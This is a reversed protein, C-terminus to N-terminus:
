IKKKKKYLAVVGGMGLFSAITIGNGILRPPTNQTFRTQVTHKGAPISYSILGQTREFTMSALKGDIRTEWGPFYATEETITQEKETNIAYIHQTGSWSQIQIDAKSEPVPKQNSLTGPQIVLTRPRNEDLITSTQTFTKYYLDDHHIFDTVPKKATSILSFILVGIFVTRVARPADLYIYGALLSGLFVVPGLLRWPFQVYSLMPILKWIFLSAPLMMFSLALVGCVLGFIQKAHKTRFVVHLVGFFLSVLILGGIQFSMTDIPGPYSFGHEFMSFLLQRLTPFHLYYQNSVSVLDLTVFKKEVLAPIWFFSSALLGFFATLIVHKTRARLAIYILLSPIVFMAVINHALALSLISIFLFLKNKISPNQRTREILWLTTPLLAYGLVEGIAGRLYINSFLFPSLLYTCTAFLSAVKPMFIRCYFYTGVTGFAVGLLFLLKLTTEVHLRVALFPLAAINALPYNFNFVPYGYGGWFTPAWRPPFQGQKLAVAYNAIRALHNEGDHTFPFGSHFMPLALLAFALILIISLFRKM